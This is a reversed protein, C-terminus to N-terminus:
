KRCCGGSPLRLWLRSEIKPLLDDGVVFGLSGVGDLPISEVHVLQTQAGLRQNVEIRWLGHGCGKNAPTFKQVASTTCFELLDSEDGNPATIRLSFEQRTVSKFELEIQQAQVPCCSGGLQQLPRSSTLTLTQLHPAM